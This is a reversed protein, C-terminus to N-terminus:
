VTTRRSFKQHYPDQRIKQRSILRIREVKALPPGQKLWALMAKVKKASGVVVAEVQGNQRNRIWGSVGLQHAKQLAHWRFFVGQVRGSILVHIKIM